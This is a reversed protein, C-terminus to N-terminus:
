RKRPMCDQGAAKLQSCAAAAAARSAYGAARVRYWTGKAGLDAKEVDLAHGALVKPHRKVLQAWSKRAAAEDKLALIQVVFAGKSAPAV